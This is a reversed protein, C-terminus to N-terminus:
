RDYHRHKSALHADFIYNLMPADPRHNSQTQNAAASSASLKIATRSNTPKRAQVKSANKIQLSPTPVAVDGAADTQRTVNMNPGFMIASKTANMAFPVHMLVSAIPVVTPFADVLQANDADSHLENDADNEDSSLSSVIPPNEVATLNENTNFHYNTKFQLPDM